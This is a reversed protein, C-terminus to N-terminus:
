GVFWMKLVALSERLYCPVLNYWQLSAHMHTTKGVGELKAIAVGRYIHFNNTIVAAKYEGDFRENLIKASFRMNENTSTAQEEKIIVDREVGNDVLYKEMAYAETVSEQFGKGGTVVILAGPNKAHYEITKDLRLKLPLTVKDGRLGAGLVIVVDEDYTVNDSIGYFAIFGVLVIEALMFFALVIAINRFIRKKLIAKIKDYCAFVVLFALGIVATLIVGLNLNSMVCLVSGNAFLLVGFILFLIKIM